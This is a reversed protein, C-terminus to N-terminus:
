FPLADGSDSSTELQPEPSSTPQSSVGTEVRWADLNTFYNVKGEKEWKRGKINFHVKINDGINFPNIDDCKAQVIQFKIDETFISGNANEETQIVFERKQFKDSVVVTDFKEILKGEIEYSM